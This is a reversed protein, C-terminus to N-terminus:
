KVLAMVRTLVSGGTELNIVYTGSPLGEAVFRVEHRGAAQVGDVLTSVKRGLVDHVGLYVPASHPIAYRITTEPNFPNPYNPALFVETPLIRSDKGPGEASVSMRRAVEIAQGANIIGWGFVNDPNSPQSATSRLLDRVQIPDLSPNVQLIQAVVAAVLPSSFSTGNHRRYSDNSGAGWVTMGLAAVDPKTRGDASPGYSSFYARTWDRNTAGVAIVSDGDAPNTIHYWCQSPLSCTGENGASAVVVVGLEAARDAAITTVGTDGDLDAPTYQRQEGDDFTSYGLSINVVDAGMSELWEMGAVFYDEEANTETPTYETIAALVEAGHAPGILGDSQDEFYGVAVSAVSMGHLNNDSIDSPTVFDRVGILRGEAKLDDFVRHDFSGFPTDLFGIRVGTGNIGQELPEIANMFALQYYSRGYELQYDATPGSDKGMFGDYFDPPLRKGPREPIPTPAERLAVPHVGRVFGVSRVEALLEETLDASVANLWRSEVVPSVGIEELRRLYSPSIGRDHYSGRASARGRLRRRELARESVEAVEAGPKGDLYIWYRSSAGPVADAQAGIQAWAPITATAAVFAALWRASMSRSPLLATRMAINETHIALPLVGSDKRPNGM